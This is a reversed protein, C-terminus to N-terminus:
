QHSGGCRFAACVGPCTAFTYGFSIGSGYLDSGGDRELMVFAVNQDALWRLAALSVMGDAGIVIVRRLGHHVRPFRGTRRDNGIGDELILHGRDVRVKIGYGVLVVVGHSPGFLRYFHVSRIDRPNSRKESKRASSPQSVTRTATM